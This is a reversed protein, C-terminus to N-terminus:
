ASKSSSVARVTVRETMRVANRMSMPLRRPDIEWDDVSKVYMREKCWAKFSQHGVTLLEPKGSKRIIETLDSFDGSSPSIALDRHEYITYGSQKIQKWGTERFHSAIFSGAEHLKDKCDRLKAELEKKIKTQEVFVTTAAEIKM